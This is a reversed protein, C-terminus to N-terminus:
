PPACSMHDGQAVVTSGADPHEKPCLAYSISVVALGGQPPRLPLALAM